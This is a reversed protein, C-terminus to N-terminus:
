GNNKKQIHFMSCCGFLSVFSCVYVSLCPCDIFNPTLLFPFLVSMRDFPCLHGVLPVWFWFWVNRWHYGSLFCSTEEGGRVKPAKATYM